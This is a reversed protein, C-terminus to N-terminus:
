RTIVVRTNALGAQRALSFFQAANDPHLRVCGHSAPRGLRKLDFTAHVAYGGNFFVAYPMPANDYKRSRHDRSLWKASWSGTPTVYGDRATSVKWRYKVFGNETVTMMQKGISVNAVLTAAEATVPFFQLLLSAAAAALITKM